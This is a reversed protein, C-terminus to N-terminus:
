VAALIFTSVLIEIDGTNREPCVRGKHWKLKGHIRAAQYVLFGQVAMLCVALLMILIIRFGVITAVMVILKVTGAGLGFDDKHQYVRAFVYNIGLVAVFSLLAASLSEIGSGAPVPQAFVDLTISSIL